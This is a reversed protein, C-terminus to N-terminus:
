EEAMGAESYREESLLVEYDCRLKDNRVFVSDDEYEGFHELSSIGIVDDIDEIVVGDEDALVGDTYYTLSVCEYADNGGFEEPEIVYPAQIDSEEIVYGEQHIMAAYEAVNAKERAKEAAKRIEEPVSDATHKKFAEKVSDIEKQAKKEYKDRAIRWAAIAGITVGAVFCTLAVMNNNM